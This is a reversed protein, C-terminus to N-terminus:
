ESKYKEFEQAIDAELHNGSHVLVRYRLKIEEGKKLLTNKDNEPWYMPTPSFFGYDRTFWPSPYWENSPHQMIAMGETKGLRQGSCDMWFSSKGFTNKEGTEGEANIMVGGNIVALDPDMRGSFLSHNTKEIVVDLLMEMTVDFDIQFKGKSPASVTITRKDKIPADAGPRRWICENEIVVKEKGSEIIDARLSIIQGRELGEQWYNGGNVKDCGFFLSSHHPYNANRMSTVSANSPGNVPYFFPYKEFESLVYNTFLNGNIRIEIRDGVKNATVKEQASAVQCSLAISLMIFPIHKKM